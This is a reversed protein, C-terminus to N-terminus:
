PLRHQQYVGGGGGVRHQVGERRKGALQPPRAQGRDPGGRGGDEGGVGGRGACRPRRQRDRRAARVRGGLHEAPGDGVAVLVDDLEGVGGGLHVGAGALRVREGGGEPDAREDGGSVSRGAVVSGAARLPVG